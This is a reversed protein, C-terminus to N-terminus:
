IWGYGGAGKVMPSADHGLPDLEIARKRPFRWGPITVPQRTKLDNPKTYFLM